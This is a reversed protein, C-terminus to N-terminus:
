EKKQAGPASAPTMSAAGKIKVTKTELSGDEKKWYSGGVMEGAAIDSMTAPAGDKTIATTNTVKFTRKGIAFTKASADVSAVKGHYPIARAKKMAPSEATAATASPEPSSSKKEKASAAFPAVVALVAILLAITTPVKPKM